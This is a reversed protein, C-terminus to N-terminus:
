FNSCCKKTSIEFASIQVTDVRYQPVVVSMRFFLNTEFTFMFFIIRIKM